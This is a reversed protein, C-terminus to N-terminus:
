EQKSNKWPKGFADVSQFTVEVPNNPLKPYLLIHYNVQNTDGGAEYFYKLYLQIKNFEKIVRQDKVRNGGVYKTTYVYGVILSYKNFDIEPLDIPKNTYPNFIDYVSDDNVVVFHNTLAKYEAGWVRVGPLGNEYYDDPFECYNEVILKQVIRGEHSNFYETWEPIVNEVQVPSIARPDSGDFIGEISCSCLLLSALLLIAVKKM